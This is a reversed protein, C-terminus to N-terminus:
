SGQQGERGMVRLSARKNLTRYSVQWSYVACTRQGGATDEWRKCPGKKRIGEQVTIGVTGGVSGAMPKLTFHADQCDFSRQRRARDRQLEDPTQTRCLGSTSTFSLTQDPAVILEARHEQRETRTGLESDMRYNVTAVLDYTGPV